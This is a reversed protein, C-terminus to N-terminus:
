PVETKLGENEGQVPTDKPAQRRKKSLNEAEEVTDPLKIGITEPLLLALIGSIVSTSGFLLLPLSEMYRALLPVQPAAIPGLGGMVSCGALMSQRLETPFMEVAFIYIVDFSITISFKGALYLVIRLWTMETPVAIFLFCCIGSAILSGCLSVKRGIRNLCYYTAIPSPLEIVGTLIYNLYKNGALSTANFTMGAFVFAISMWCFSCTLLRWLLIKSRVMQKLQSTKKPPPPKKRAVDTMSHLSTLSKFYNESLVVGNIKAAKHVIKQAEEMKGKAMLWRVSEPLLWYYSLFLVSPVYIVMLIKRWDQFYWSISGMILEGTPNYTSMIAGGLVRKKPGMLELGMVFATTYIGGGVIGEALNCVQFMIYNLSLSRLIGTLCTLGLGGLLAFRRGWKDSIFGMLPRSILIGGYILSGSLTLKWKNEDCTLNFERAITSENGEFVWDDCKVTSNMNFMEAPCSDGDEFSANRNILEYRHCRLPLKDGSRTEMPVANELWAPRFEEGTDGCEPIRCRYNMDGSTFVFSHSTVIAFVMPLSILMYTFIQYRGFQGLEELIDDLDTPM